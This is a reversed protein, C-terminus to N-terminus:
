SSAGRSSSPTVYDNLRIVNWSLPELRASLVEGDVGAEGTVVRPAVEGPKERTNVARPDAHALVIHEVLRMGGFGRLSAEVELRETLSRNVAFLTLTGRAEDAVVATELYPVAGHERSEYVPSEVRADLVTGRGFRSGHLFPYFITQRWAPGGNATMIPAITNVLQALCAIRVRDANKLLTMLLCGVVLADEFTYVDELLPPGVTWPEVQRDAALSHFWVNWEDFSLYMTRASRRKAKVFDCTATV